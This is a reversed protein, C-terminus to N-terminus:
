LLRGIELSVEVVAFTDDDQEHSANCGRLKVLGVISPTKLHAKGQVASSESGERATEQRAWQRINSDLVRVGQDHGDRVIGGRM